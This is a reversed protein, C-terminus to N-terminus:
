GSLKASSSNELEVHTVMTGKLPRQVSEISIGAKLASMVGAAELYTDVYILQGIQWPLQSLDNKM